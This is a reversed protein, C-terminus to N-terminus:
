CGGIYEVIVSDGIVDFMFLYLMVLWVEGFVVDIVILFLECELVVVVEVM